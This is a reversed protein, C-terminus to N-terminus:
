IPLFLQDYRSLREYLSDTNKMFLAKFRNAYVVDGSMPLIHMCNTADKSYKSLLELIPNKTATIFEVKEELLNAVSSYHEQLESTIENNQNEEQSTGLYLEINASLKQSIYFLLLSIGEYYTYNKNEVISFSVRPLFGHGSALTPIKLQYFVKKYASFISPATLILSPQAKRIKSLLKKGQDYDISLSIYRKSIQKLRELINLDTPNTLHIVISELGLKKYLRITKKLLTFIQGKPILRMDLLLYIANMAHMSTEINNVTNYFDNVITPQGVVLLKDDPHIMAFPTPLILKNKRYIAAISFNKQKISSLHRYIYSSQRPVSMEVIERVGLGVNQAVVPINPLTNLLRNSLIDQSNVDMINNGEKLESSAYDEEKLNWHNLFSVRSKPSLNQLDKLTEITQTKTKQCVVILSYLTKHTIKQLIHKSPTTHFFVVNYKSTEKFYDEKHLDSSVIHYINQPNNSTALTDLFM